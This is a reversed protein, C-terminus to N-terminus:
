GDEEEKGWPGLGAALAACALAVTMPAGERRWRLVSNKSAGLRRAAELGSWGMADLWGEFVAAPMRDDERM